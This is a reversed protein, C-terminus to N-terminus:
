RILLEKDQLIQRLKQMALRIRTKVTGLPQALAEAIQHHTYGGFYALALAQKQEPTLQAIAARVRERQLALEVMEAPNGADPSSVEAWTAERELRANRQRLVDIACNRTITVLWTTVKAQNARYTAAKEWVRTFVDLTVEEATAYDRVSNVALSFVLRHYRVYLESLARTHTHAILAILTADDLTSYDM